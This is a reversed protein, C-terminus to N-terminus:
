FIRVVSENPSKQIFASFQPQHKCLHAIDQEAMIMFATSLADAEAGTPAGAWARFRSEAPQGTHPNMIHSGQVARGSGSFANQHLTLHCPETEPGFQIPWGPADLPPELALITSTSASLLAQDLDWEHLLVAMRDLAYGKGIGGLDLRVGEALVRVRNRPELAIRM